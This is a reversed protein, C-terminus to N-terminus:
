IIKVTVSLQTALEAGPDDLFRLILENACEHKMYSLFLVSWCGHVHM